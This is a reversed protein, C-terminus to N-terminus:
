INKQNKDLFGHDLSLSSHNIGAVGLPTLLFAQSLKTHLFRPPAM